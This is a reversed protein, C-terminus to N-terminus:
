KIRGEIKECVELNRYADNISVPFKKGNKVCNVFTLLEEMLTHSKSVSFREVKDKTSVVIERNLLDGYITRTIEEVYISRVKQYSYRSGSLAAYFDGYDFLVNHVYMDGQSKFVPYEENFFLNYLIDIDHSMIDKIVSIDRVKPPPPQHRKIEVYMPYNVLEKVKQIVPNFREGFGVGVVCSNDIYNMFNEANSLNNAIPKEILVHVNDDKLIQEAVSWHTSSPTCISVLEVKKLLEDVSKCVHIIQASVFDYNQYKDYVFIDDVDDIFSYNNIHNRGMYGTGIVGVDM